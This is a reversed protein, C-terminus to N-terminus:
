SIKDWIHYREQRFWCTRCLKHRVRRQLFRERFVQVPERLLLLPPFQGRTHPEQREQKHLVRQEQMGLERKHLEQQEQMGPERKRLVQRVQMGPERKRPEQQVQM